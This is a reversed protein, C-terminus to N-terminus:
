LVPLAFKEPWAKYERGELYPNTGPYLGNDQKYFFTVGQALCLDRLELAWEIEGKRYGKGSEFGVIVWDIGKLNIGTLPGLLPEASIFRAYAPIKALEEARYNYKGHEITVGLAVNFYHKPVRKRNLEMWDSPLYRPIFEVRKTLMLWMLFRTSKIIPWLKERGGPPAEEDCWDMM